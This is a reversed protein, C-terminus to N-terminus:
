SLAEVALCMNIGERVFNDCNVFCCSSIITTANSECSCHDKVKADTVTKVNVLLLRTNSSVSIPLANQM